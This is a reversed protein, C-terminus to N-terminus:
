SRDNPPEKIAETVRQKLEQSECFADVIARAYFLDIALAIPKGDLEVLTTGAGFFRRDTAYTRFRDRLAKNINM